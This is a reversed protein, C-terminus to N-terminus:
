RKRWAAFAISLAALTLLALTGPEPVAAALPAGGITLTDAVISSANLTAGDAVFVTANPTNIGANASLTGQNVTTNGTYTPLATLTLSGDGLKTLGGDQAATGAHALVQTVTVDLANTDFKAGGELVNVAFGTGQIFDALGTATYGVTADFYTLNGITPKLTGGNFNITSAVSAAGKVIAPASFEGGNLNVVGESLSDGVDVAFGAAFTASGNLTVTGKAGNTAANVANGGILVYGEPVLFSASDNLIVDATSGGDGIDVLGTNLGWTGGDYIYKSNGSLTLSASSGVGWGFHSNGGSGESNAAHLEAYGSLNVVATSPGGGLDVGFYIADGCSLKPSQAAGTGSMAIAASGGNYGFKTLGLTSLQSNETLTLSGAGGSIGLSLEGQNDLFAGNQVTLSASKGATDAVFFDGAGNQFTINVRAKDFTGNAFVVSGEEVQFDGHGLTNTGANSFTLTGAGTKRFANAQTVTSLSGTFNLNVNASQVEVGNLFGAGAFVVNRDIAVTTPTAPAGLYALQGDLTLAATGTGLSTPQLMELRGYGTMTLPGTFSSNGGLTLVGHSIAMTNDWQNGTLTGTSQFTFGADTTLGSLAGGLTLQSNVPVKVLSQGDGAAMAIDANVTHSGSLVSIYWNKAIGSDMTISKGSDSPDIQYSEGTPSDFIMSSLTPSVNLNIPITTAGLSRVFMARDGGNQPYPNPPTTGWKGTDNWDGGAYNNWTPVVDALLGAALIQVYGNLHDTYIAADGHIGDVSDYTPLGGSLAFTITDDISGFYGDTFKLVTVDYIPVGSYSITVTIPDTGVKSIGNDVDIRTSNGLSDITFNLNSNNELNLSDAHYVYAGVAAKAALTGGSQLTTAPYASMSEPNSYGALTGTNAVTVGSSAFNIGNLTLKGGNVVTPGTYTCSANLALEGAGTKTLGGSVNPALTSGSALTVVGATGAVAGSGGGGLLQVNLTDGDSYNTGPNTITIGTVVGGSMTAVATVDTGGGSATTIKVLPAATYGSGGNTVDISTVGNGAPAVLPSIGTTGDTIEITAGESYVNFAAANYIQSNGGKLTGGHFNATALTSTGLSTIGDVVLTGGGTGAAGINIVSGGHATLYGGASNVTGTGSVTLIGRADTWWAWGGLAFGVNYTSDPVANVTGGSVSVEGYGSTLLGVYKVDATGTFNATGGTVRLCDSAANEGLVPLGLNLTADDQLTVITTGSGTESGFPSAGDEYGFNFYTNGSATFTAHDKLIVNAQGSRNLYSMRATDSNTLSSTDSMIINCIGGGTAALNGELQAISLSANGSMKLTSNSSVPGLSLKGTMTLVGGNNIDLEGNAASGITLSNPTFSCTTDLQAAVTGDLILDVGDAAAPTWNGPTNFDNGIPTWISAAQAILPM